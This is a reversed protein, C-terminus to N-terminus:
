RLAEYQERLEHGREPNVMAVYAIMGRLWNEFHPRQETNQAAFGTRKANHLIARLRRITNRDISRKDNVVIGTVSQRTHNRQVRTKKANIRFGEDESIHRIRALLYGIKDGHETSTSFTLDDAYRTYRWHMRNAIGAFRVDLNRCILSSIAPSTCAGQPLGRHGTAPYYTEGSFTVADRPCETCVLALITAVAPSYGFSRFLGEVRYFTITPFFDCLDANIVVDAGVHLDANTVTSRERVFGHAADHVPLQNLISDLIWRQVAALQKYPAALRREGGSKKPVKFYVYHTRTPAESHFALWRLKPIAVGM